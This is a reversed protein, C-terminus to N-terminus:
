AVERLKGLIEVMAETDRECYKLLARSIKEKEEGEAEIMRAFEVSALGGEQIELDKYNLEPVLVPLVNKISNSGCFRADTYYNRFIDLMDWLRNIVRDVKNRYEPFYDALENLRSKEFSSYVIISGKDGLAELLSELLEKRPDETRDWLFEKHTLNGNELIHMSWQFTLVAYPSMGNHRPIAWNITEFDLFYIPETLKNLVNRIAHKDIVPTGTRCARIFREQAENLAIEPLDELRIIGQEYLPWKKRYNPINFISLEPIKSWCMEGLPCEHPKACHPGIDLGPPQDVEAIKRMEKVHAPIGALLQKAEETVDETKFLNGDPHVYDGNLLVLYTSGVRYGAGEIIWRQVAVDPIYEPKQEKSSKVEYLDLVGNGPNHLIDVKCHVGQHEFSAEYVYEVGEKLAEQTRKVAADLPFPEIREGGPFLGTAAKGVEGGQDLRFQTAADFPPIQDRLKIQFYFLKPCQLFDMYRSKSLSHPTPPM